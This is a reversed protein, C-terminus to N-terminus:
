KKGRRGLRELLEIAALIEKEYADKRNKWDQLSQRDAEVASELRSMEGTLASIEAQLELKRREAAAARGSMKELAGTEFVDLAKDRAIADNALDELSVNEARLEKLIAERVLDENMSSYPEGHLTQSLREFTWGSPLNPIGAKSFIEEFSVNLDESLSKLISARDKDIEKALDELTVVRTCIKGPAKQSSRSMEILKLQQGLAQLRELLGM